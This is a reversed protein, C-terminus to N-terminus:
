EWLTHARWNGLVEQCNGCGVGLLLDLEWGTALGRSRQAGGSWWGRHHRSKGLRNRQAKWGRIQRVLSIKPDNKPTLAQWPPYLFLLARKPVFSSFSSLYLFPIACWQIYRQAEWSYSRGMWHWGLSWFAYTFNGRLSDHRFKILPM